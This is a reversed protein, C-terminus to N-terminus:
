PWGTDVPDRGTLLSELVSSVVHSSRVQAGQPISPADHISSLLSRSFDGISLISEKWFSSPYGFTHIRVDRFAVDESLWSKLWFNSADGGHTWTSYSGGNIGHVFILDVVASSEAPSYLNTLGLPGKPPDNQGGETPEKRRAFTRALLSSHAGTAAPAPRDPHSKM